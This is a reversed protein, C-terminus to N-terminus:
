LKEHPENLGGNNEVVLNRFAMLDRGICIGNHTWLHEVNSDVRGPGNMFDWSYFRSQSHSSDIQDVFSLDTPDSQLLDEELVHQYAPLATSSLYDESVSLSAHVNLAEDDSSASISSRSTEQSGDVELDLGGEDPNAVRRRKSTEKVCDNQVDQPDVRKGQSLPDRQINITGGTHLSIANRVLETASDQAM